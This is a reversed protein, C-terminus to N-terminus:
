LRVGRHAFRAGTAARSFGFLVAHMLKGFPFWLLLLELSLLHLALPTRYIVADRALLAASPESAVAMGTAFPLFTLTWSIWDDPRSILRLVPDNLRQWAAYLLSVMTVGAALYMVPDPLAPWHPGATRRIFEVHPAYALFVLAMGAHFIWGNLANLTAVPGFDRRPWLGRLISRAAGAWPGPAGARPPSLDPRAPLRLVGALRWGTGLLFVAVSVALGPGRAFDLLDM